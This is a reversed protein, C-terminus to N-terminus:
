SSPGGSERDLWRAYDEPTDLDDMAGTDDVELEVVRARERELLANVGVGAPLDRVARADGLPLAVPHGRRGRCSPVVIADPRQCAADIVRAVLEATLGPIDGPTLLVTAHAGFGRTAAELGLEVSARMDPPQEDPVHLIAGAKEADTAIEDYFAGRSVPPTVVIVPSAGGDQLARVVRTLVSVPGAPLILKSRGMRRSEGAAPVVALTM